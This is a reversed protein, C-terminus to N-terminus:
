ARPGKLMGAIGSMWSWITASYLPMFVRIAPALGAM